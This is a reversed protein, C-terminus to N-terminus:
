PAIDSFRVSLAADFLPSIPQDFAITKIDDWGNANPGRHVVTENNQLDLVWLEPVGSKGYRPAKVTLDRQRTTDAVEIALKVVSPRIAKAGALPEFILLDTEFTTAPRDAIRLTAEPAFLLTDPLKPVFWKTLRARWLIHPMNQPNMPVIEGDILEFKEDPDLIGAALMAEIEDISFGRRDLGEAGRTLLITM